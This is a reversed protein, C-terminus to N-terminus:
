LAKLQDVTMGTRSLVGEFEKQARKKAGDPDDPLTVLRSEADGKIKSRPTCCIRTSETVAAMAGVSMTNAHVSYPSLECIM